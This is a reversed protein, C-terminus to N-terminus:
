YTTTYYRSPMKGDFIDKVDECALAYNEYKLTKNYYNTLLNNNISIVYITDGYDNDKDVDIVIDSNDITFRTTKPVRYGNDIKEVHLKKGLNTVM